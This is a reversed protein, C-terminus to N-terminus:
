ALFDIMSMTINLCAVYQRYYIFIFVVLDGNVTMNVCNLVMDKV